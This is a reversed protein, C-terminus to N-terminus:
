LSLLKDFSSDATWNHKSVYNWFDSMSFANVVFSTGGGGRTGSLNEFIYNLEWARILDGADHEYDPSLSVAEPDNSKELLVYLTTETTDLTVLGSSVGSRTNTSGSRVEDWNATPSTTACKVKSTEWGVVHYEPEDEITIKSATYYRYFAGDYTYDGTSDDKTRYVKVIEKTLGAKPPNPAPAPTTGQPYDWTHTSDTDVAGKIAIIGYACGIIDKTSHVGTTSTPPILGCWEEVFYMSNPLLNHTARCQSNYDPVYRGWALSTGCYVETDSYFEVGYGWSPEVWIVGEVMLFQGESSFKSVKESDFGLIQMLVYGTNNAYTTNKLMLWDRIALGNGSYNSGSGNFVPLGWPAPINIMRTYPIDFRTHLGGYNMVRGSSPTPVSGTYTMFVVDSAIGGEADVVYVLFGTRSSNFGQIPKSAGTASSVGSGDPNTVDNDDGGANDILKDDIAGESNALSVMTLLNLCVFIAFLVRFLRRLM